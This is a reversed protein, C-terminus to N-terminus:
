SSSYTTSSPTQTIRRQSKWTSQVSVRGSSPARTSRYGTEARRRGVLYARPPTGLLRRQRRRMRSTFADIQDRPILPDKYIGPVARLVRAEVMKRVAGPSIDLLEAVEATTLLDRHAVDHM